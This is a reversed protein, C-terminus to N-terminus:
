IMAEIYPRMVSEVRCIKAFRLLEGINKKRKSLWARLAEVAIERGIKNRYKFADAIAKPASYIRVDQGDIKHIEVGAEYASGSFWYLNIPPYNVRPTESGREIAIDVAHPIETTLEHFALASILCVIGKPIRITTVVFDPNTLIPMSKLRYVGRSLREILQADLMAYLTQRKIGKEVAEAM